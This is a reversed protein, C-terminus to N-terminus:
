EDQPSSAGVDIIEADIVEIPTQVQEPSANVIMINTVPGAQQAALVGSLEAELRIGGQKVRAVAALGKWDRERESGDLARELRSEDARLREVFPAAACVQRSTEVLEATTRAPSDASNNTSVLKAATRIAPKLVKRRYLNISQHSIDPAIDRSVARSSAGSLLAEIIQKRKPHAEVAWQRPKPM